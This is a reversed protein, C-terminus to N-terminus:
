DRLRHCLHSANEWTELVQVLMMLMMLVLTAKKLKTNLLMMLLLLMLKSMEMMKLIFEVQLVLKTVMKASRNEELKPSVWIASPVM